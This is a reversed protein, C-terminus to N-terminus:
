MACCDALVRLTRIAESYLDVADWYRGAKFAANGSEKKKEAMVGPELEPEDGEEQGDEEDDEDADEFEDDSLKKSTTPKSATASSTARSLSPSTHGNMGNTATVPDSSGSYM